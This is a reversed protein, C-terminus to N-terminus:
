KNRRYISSPRYGDGPRFGGSRFSNSPKYGDGPRPGAGPRNPSNYNDSPKYGDGPRFADGPRHTQGARVFDTPRYRDDRQAPRPTVAQGVPRVSPRKIPQLPKSTDVPKAPRVPQSPEVPKSPRVPQSPEVPKSPRIPKSPEVPKSPRPPEPRPPRPPYPRPPRPEPPYPKPPYPRPPHPPWPKPPRPGPPYPRPPPPPVNWHWWSNWSRFYWPLPQVIIVPTSSYTTGRPAMSLSGDPYQYYLDGDLIVQKLVVERYPSVPIAGIIFPRSVIIGCFFTPLGLSFFHYSGSFSGFGTNLSGGLLTTASLIAAFTTLLTKM